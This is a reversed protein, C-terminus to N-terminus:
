NIIDGDLEGGCFKCHDADKDHGQRGCDPCALAPEQRSTRSLEATVIGTPVAIISYGIIMVVSALAQGWPTVPSLDGYGVTSLTVIAWYISRPISSFRSDPVHGEVIYMLSGLIVVLTIVCFLFVEIKRRSARMARLLVNAEGVYQVIRLVRFVRLVRLIRIVVLYHNGVVLLSIYTPLVALLDVIGFFSLAYKMPRGICILRLVYEITFLITFGWEVRWFLEGFRAHVPEVSDLMIVIVSALICGILVIDFLRGVKTDSEFIIVYMRQRWTNVTNNVKESM